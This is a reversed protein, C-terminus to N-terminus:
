LEYLVFTFRYSCFLIKRMDTCILSLSSNTLFFLQILKAFNINNNINSKKFPQEYNLTRIKNLPFYFYIFKNLKELLSSHARREVEFM